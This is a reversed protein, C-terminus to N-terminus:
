QREGLIARGIRVLTAGEEVAVQYDNTMGMSLECDQLGSVTEQLDGGLRALERFVPRTEEPDEYHPAMTMLGRVRVGQLDAIEAATEDLGEPALGRKSKEGSVNVQLLIDSITGAHLARRSIEEALKADDVSHILACRGAVYKVNGRQLPGVFHWQVDAVDSLLSWKDTFEKPRSEGLVRIGAELARSIRMVSQGKSVTVIEVRRPDRGARECAADIQRRVRALRGAITETESRKEESM